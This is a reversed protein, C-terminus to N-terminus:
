PLNNASFIDQLIKAMEGQNTAPIDFSQSPNSRVDLLIKQLTVEHTYLHNTVKNRIVEVACIYREKKILIPAAIIGTQQKKNHVHHHAMELIVIGNELVEKVSAFAIAKLRGIGHGYSNKVGRKDLKVEGFQCIAKGGIHYYYEAVQQTLSKDPIPLFENGDLEKVPPHELLFKKQVAKASKESDASFSTANILNDTIM